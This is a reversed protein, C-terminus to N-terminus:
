QRENQPQNLAGGWVQKKPADSFTLWNEAFSGRLTTEQEGQMQEKSKNVVGGRNAGLHTLWLQKLPLHAGNGLGFVKKELKAINTSSEM